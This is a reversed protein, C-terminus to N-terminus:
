GALRDAEPAEPPLATARAGAIGRLFTIVASRTGTRAMCGEFDDRLSLQREFTDDHLVNM